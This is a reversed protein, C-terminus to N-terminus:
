ALHSGLVAKAFLIKAKVRAEQLDHSSLLDM